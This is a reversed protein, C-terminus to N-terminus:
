KLPNATDPQGRKSQRHWKDDLVPAPMMPTGRRSRPKGGETRDQELDIITTRLRGQRRGLRAFVGTAM